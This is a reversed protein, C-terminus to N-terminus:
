ETCEDLRFPILRMAFNMFIVEDAPVALVDLSTSVDDLGLTWHM